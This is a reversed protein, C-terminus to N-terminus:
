STRRLEHRVSAARALVAVAVMSVGAHKLVGAAESATAGTTLIDDILLVRAGRLDYGARLRFAGRVNRFREEPRLNAQPLTKRCRFVIRGAMPVGLRRGLEDALMDPNNVGRVTRRTWHMPVPIVTDVGLQRLDNEWAGWFLRSLAGALPVGSSRKLWLVADRLEEQYPGLVFTRDMRLRRSRCWGCSPPPPLEAPAQAGCRLCGSWQRAALLERCAGCLLVEDPLDALEADCRVCRPPFLLDQAFKGGAVTTRRWLRCVTSWTFGTRGSLITM